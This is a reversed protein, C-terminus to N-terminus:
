LPVICGQPPYRDFIINIGKLAKMKMISKVILTNYFQPNHTRDNWMNKQQVVVIFNAGPLLYSDIESSISKANDDDVVKERILLKMLEGKTSPLSMSNSGIDYRYSMEHKLFESAVCIPIDDMILSGRSLDEETLISIITNDDVPIDGVYTMDRLSEHPISELYWLDFRFSDSDYEGIHISWQSQPYDHKLIVYALLIQMSSTMDYANINSIFDGNQIVNFWKMAEDRGTGNSKMYELAYSEWSIIRLVLRVYQDDLLEPRSQLQSIVEDIHIFKM